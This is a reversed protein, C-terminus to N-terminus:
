ALMASCNVAYPGAPDSRGQQKIPSLKETEARCSLKDNPSM